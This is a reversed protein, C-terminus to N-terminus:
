LLHQPLSQSNGLVDVRFCPIQYNDSPPPLIPRVVYAERERGTQMELKSYPM